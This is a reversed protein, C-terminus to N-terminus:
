CPWRKEKSIRPKCKVGPCKGCTATPDNNCLYFPSDPTLQTNACFGHYCKQSYCDENKQCKVGICRNKVINNVLECECGPELQASIPNLLVLLALTIISLNIWSNLKM